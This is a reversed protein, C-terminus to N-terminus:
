TTQELEFALETAALALRDNRVGHEMFLARMREYDPEM